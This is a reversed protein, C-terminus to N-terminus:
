AAKRRDRIAQKAQARERSRRQARTEFSDERAFTPIRKAEHSGVFLAECKDARVAEKLDCLNMDLLRSYRDDNV